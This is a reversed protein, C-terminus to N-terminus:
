VRGGSEKRSPKRLAAGFGIGLAIMVVLAMAHALTSAGLATQGQAFASMARYLGLGPVLPLIAITVFVTAIMKLRRASAQAGISAILAGVFMATTEGAGARMVLWYAAFGVGGLLGGWLIAKRPAYLLAGFGAGALTSSLFMVMLQWFFSSESLAQVEPATLQLMGYLHTGMLAGGAVMVAIMIARACHAVGSVMDGRIIDQVANTMSLGPVLPMIAAAIMSEPSGLGTAAHLWLPILACLIGGALTGVMGAADRGRFLYPVLQTLAACFGGVLMDVPGGGFMVAFGAASLFATLPAYWWAMDAGIHEAKKLEDILEDPSLEGSSLLRSIQNVRDVRSLHTGKLFVRSVSTKREGSDDTFSIFLGSPVAFVDAESLHLAQAMHLVTDEARYTEGGNELIIRGALCLAKICGAANM